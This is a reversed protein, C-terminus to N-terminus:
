KQEKLTNNFVKAVDEAPRGLLKELEHFAAAVGQRNPDVPNGALFVQTVEAVRRQLAARLLQTERSALWETLALEPM